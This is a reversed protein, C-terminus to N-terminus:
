FKWDAIIRKGGKEAKSRLSELEESLGPPIRYKALIYEHDTTIRYDSQKNMEHIGSIQRSIITSYPQKEQKFFRSYRDTWKTFGQLLFEGSVRLIV